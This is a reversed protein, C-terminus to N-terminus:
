RYVLTLRPLVLSSEVTNYGDSLHRRRKRSTDALVDVKVDVPVAEIGLRSFSHVQAWM